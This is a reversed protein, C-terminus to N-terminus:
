AYACAGWHAEAALKRRWWRRAFRVYPKGPQEAGGESGDIDSADGLCSTGTTPSYSPEPIRGLVLEISARSAGGIGQILSHARGRGLAM